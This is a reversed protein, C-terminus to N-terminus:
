RIIVIRCAVGKSAGADSVFVNYIGAAVRRGRQDRGDWTFLGGNSTGQAILQGSTTCIKVTCDSSLGRVYIDGSYEPRVPNPYAYINDENLTEEPEVADSYYCALGSMSGFMVAGTEENVAISTIYDSPLPSNETTFHQLTEQGDASFLYVGQGDTGLWKRNAGDVAIATISIGSLLYDALGSGDNRNIKIQTYATNETFNDPDELVFPGLNTGIWLQGNKDFEICYYYDVTYNVGDQNTCTNHKFIMSGSRNSAPTNNNYRIRALGASETTRESNIWVTNDRMKFVDFKSNGEIPEYYQAAWTGDHKLIRIITDVENNFMWLNGESDYTLGNVRVYHKYNSSEPLISSLPSNTCDYHNVLKADRFEYIGHGASSAFHHNEDFPDQAVSTINVYAKGTGEAIGEAKYSTDEEFNTWTDDELYMVTGQYYNGTYNHSGGAVLLRNGEYKLYNFYDRVPSNPTIDGATEVWEDNQYKYTCLGESGRAVYYNGSSYDLSKMGDPLPYTTPTDDTGDFVHLKDKGIVMLKDGTSTHIYQLNTFGTGSFINVGKTVGPMEFRYVSTNNIAYLKDGLMRMKLFGWGITTWQSPDQLNASLSGSLISRKGSIITQAYVKGDYLTTTLVQGGPNYISIFAEQEMDIVVIGYNCSLYAREEEILVDNVTNDSFTKEKLQPMNVVENTRVDIIDINANSYLVLLKKVESNYEIREIGIDSLGTLRSYTEVESDETNYSYLNGNAV